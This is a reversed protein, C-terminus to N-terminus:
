KIQEKLVDIEKKLENIAAFAVACLKEYDVALTGNPKTRVALPFVSQVDQAIVGFDNKRVFYGDEGGRNALYEDKWDFTKGGVVSVINLAGEIEHVNEKFAADSTYFGTIDNAARIEGVTGSADTGVGLSSARLNTVTPSSTWTPSGTGGSILLQGSSGAASMGTTNAASQYVIAGAVGGAINLVTGVNYAITELTDASTCSEVLTISTGSAAAFDTTTLLVGNLYVQIYGPTYNVNFVSQGDTPTFTTRTYTTIGVGGTGGGGGSTSTATASTIRGQGDITLIPTTTSSGYVGPVVATNALLLSTIKTTM